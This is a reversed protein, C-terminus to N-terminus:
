CPCLGAAAGLLDDAPGGPDDDASRARERDGARGHNGSHCLRLLLAPPHVVQRQPGRAVDARDMLYAARAMYGCDELIAIFLFLIAIQPLFVLVGGVGRIVGVALLSRLAGDALHTEVLSEVVDVGQEILHMFPRAWVFVAQFVTAMLVAFILTGWFRHTLVRDLRDSVTTGYERPEAVVDRLLNEIWAYRASTEVGPVRQGAEALRRRSHQLAERAAADSDSLLIGQLYGSVDLLLRQVLWRPLAAGDTGHSDVLVTELRNVEAQFAEPLPSSLPRAPRDAVALLAAKLEAVGVGRNAQLPIVPLGM